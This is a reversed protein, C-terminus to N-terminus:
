NYWTWPQMTLLTSLLQKSNDDDFPQCGRFAVIPWYVLMKWGGSSCNFVIWKCILDTKRCHSGHIKRMPRGPLFIV